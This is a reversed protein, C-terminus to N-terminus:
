SKTQELFIKKAAQYLAEDNSANRLTHRIKPQNMFEAILSLLQLHEETADQPVLLAFILDVKERDIADFDIPEKLTLLVGLPRRCHNVRCHPIGVGEGVGTSGLKERAILGDFLDNPHINPTKQSVLKSLQEILGKKSGVQQQCFTLEPDLLEILQM